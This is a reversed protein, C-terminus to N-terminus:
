RVALEYAAAEKHNRVLLIKGALVPHNWTKDDLAQFRTLENFRQHTAEVLAVRGDEAMILLLDGVLIIQGHGYRGRKWRRQGDKPDLCVLIGDDLGYIYGDRYVMNAFKAKLRRTEWATKTEFGGRGDPRVRVLTGGIGYGSPAFILEESIQLPQAAVPFGSAPRPHRWLVSGDDPDHGVLTEGYLMVIQSAGDISALMPSTNRVVDDGAQWLKAGSDKHYAVLAQGPGGATVIVAEEIVLPSSSRGYILGQIQHEQEINRQWRLEGSFFDLCNLIGRAGLSYVRGDVLTPTARPGDGALVDSFAAPDSHMWRVEGSKLHYSIVWEQGERQEQTM